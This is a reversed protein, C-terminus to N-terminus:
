DNGALGLGKKADYGYATQAGGYSATWGQEELWEMTAYARANKKADYRAAAIEKYKANLRAQEASNTGNTTTNLTARAPLTAEKTFADGGPPLVPRDSRSSGNMARAAAGAAAAADRSVNNMNRSIPRGQGDIFLGSASSPSPPDSAGPIPPMRSYTTMNDADSDDSSAESESDDFIIRKHGHKRQPPPPKVLGEMQGEMIKDPIFTQPLGMSSAMWFYVAQLPSVQPIWPRATPIDSSVFAATYGESFVGFTWQFYTSVIFWRCQHLTCEDYIKAWLREKATLNRTAQPMNKTRVFNDFDREGLIWPEQVFLIIKPPTNSKTSRFHHSRILGSDIDHSPDLSHWQYEKLSPTTSHLATEVANLVHHQVYKSVDSVCSVHPPLSGTSDSLQMVTTACPSYEEIYDIIMLHFLSQNLKLVHRLRRSADYFTQIHNKHSKRGEEPPEPARADVLLAPLDYTGLHTNINVVQTRQKGLHNGHTKHKSEPASSRASM